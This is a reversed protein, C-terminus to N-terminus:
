GTMRTVVGDEKIARHWILAMSMHGLIVLALLWGLTPHWEGIAHMWGVQSAQGPFVQVGLYSFPRTGGAAGILKALPVAIMLAYLTVHGWVAATGLAGPHPPRRSLNALGWVGRLLVLLFLTTGLTPHYSWLAQRLANERGLAFHALASLFQAAFLLAMGWHLVRTVTGYRESDDMVRAM